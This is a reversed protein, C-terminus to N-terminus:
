EEAINEIYYKNIDDIAKILERNDINEEVMHVVNLNFFKKFLRNDLYAKKLDELEIIINQYREIYDCYEDIKINKKIIEVASDILICFENKM